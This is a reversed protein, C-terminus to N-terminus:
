IQTLIRDTKFIMLIGLIYKSWKFSIQGRLPTLTGDLPRESRGWLGRRLALDDFFPGFHEMKPALPGFDWLLAAGRYPDPARLTGFHDFIPDSPTSIPDWVGLITLIPWFRM